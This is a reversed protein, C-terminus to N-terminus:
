KLWFSDLYLSNKMHQVYGSEIYTEEKNECDIEALITNLYYKIVKVCSKSFDHLMYDDKLSLIGWDTEIKKLNIIKQIDSTTSSPLTIINGMERGNQSFHSIRAFRNHQLDNRLPYFFSVLLRHLESNILTYIKENEKRLKIHFKKSSYNERLSVEKKNLNFNCHCSIYASLDDFVGTILMILYGFHYLCKDMTINNPTTLSLYEIEDIANMIFMLRNIMSHLIEIKEENKNDCAKSWHRQFEYFVSHARYNLYGGKVTYNSRVYFYDNKILILRVMDFFNHYNTVPSDYIRNTHNESNTIFFDPNVSNCISSKLEFKECWIQPIFYEICGHVGKDIFASCNSDINKIEISYCNNEALIKLYESNQTPLFYIDFLKINSLEAVKSVEEEILFDTDVIVSIKQNESIAKKDFPNMWM